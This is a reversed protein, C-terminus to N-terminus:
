KEFILLLQKTVSYGRQVETGTIPVVAKLEWGDAAEKNIGNQLKDQAGQELPNFDLSATIVMIQRKAAHVPQAHVPQLAFTPRLAIVALLATILVLCVKSFRDIM